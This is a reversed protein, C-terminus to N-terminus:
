SADASSDKNISASVRKRIGAVAAQYNPTMDDPGNFCDCLNRLLGDNLGYIWGHVSIKQDREWANQLTTTQCVNSVQELVNLECM